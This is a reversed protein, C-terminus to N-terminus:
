LIVTYTFVLACGLGSTALNFQVLGPQVWTDSLDQRASMRNVAREAALSNGTRDPVVM